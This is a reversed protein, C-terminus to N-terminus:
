YVHNQSAVISKRESDPYIMCKKRKAGPKLSLKKSKMEDDEDFSIEPTFIQEKM